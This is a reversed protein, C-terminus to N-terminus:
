PQNESSLALGYWVSSEKKQLTFIETNEQETFFGEPRSILKRCDRDIM